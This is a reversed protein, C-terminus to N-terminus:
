FGCAGLLRLYLGDIGLDRELDGGFLRLWDAQVAFAEAEAAAPCAGPRGSTAQLHHVIEHVLVSVEVADRGTWGSPLLIAAGDRAYFALPRGAAGHFAPTGAVRLRAMEEPTRLLILPLAAPLPLGMREAAWAAVAAILADLPVAVPGEEAARASVALGLLVAAALALVEAARRAM